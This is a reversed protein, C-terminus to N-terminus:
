NFGRSLGLSRLHTLIANIATANAAATAAGATPVDSISESPTGPIIVEGIKFESIPGLNFEDDSITVGYRRVLHNINM